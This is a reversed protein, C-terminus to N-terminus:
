LTKGHALPKPASPAAAFILASADITDGLSITGGTRDHIARSPVFFYETGDAARFYWDRAVRDRASANLSFREAITDAFAEVAALCDGDVTPMVPWVDNASAIEGSANTAKMSALQRARLLALVQRAPDAVLARDVVILDGLMGHFHVRKLALATKLAAAGDLMTKPAEAVDRAPTRDGTFKAAGADDLRGLLAAAEVSNLSMSDFAGCLATLVVPENAAVKPVVYQHHRLLRPNQAHMEALSQALAEAGAKADAPSAKTLYHAGVLFALGHAKAVENLAAPALAAFGIQDNAPSGLIVRGSGSTVLAREVGDIKLKTRTLVTFAHGASYEASYNVRAARAPDGALSTRGGKADLTRVRDNFREAVRAPLPDPSYFTPEVNPLSAAINACFGGAGGMAENVAIAQARLSEDLWAALEASLQLQLSAGQGLVVHRVLSAVLEAKTKPRSFATTGDGPGKDIAHLLETAEAPRRLAADCLSAIARADLAIKADVLRTFGFFTRQPAPAMQEAKAARAVATSM